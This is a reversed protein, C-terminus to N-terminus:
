VVLLQFGGIKEGLIFCYVLVDYGLCGAVSVRTTLQGLQCRKM